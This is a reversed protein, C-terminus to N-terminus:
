EQPNKKFWEVDSRQRETSFLTLTDVWDETPKPAIGKRVLARRMSEVESNTEIWDRYRVAFDKASEEDTGSSLLNTYHQYVWDVDRAVQVDDDSHSHSVRLVTAGLRNPLLTDGRRMMLRGIAACDAAHSRNRGSEEDIRCANVIHQFPPLVTGATVSMAATFAVMDKDPPNGDQAALARYSDPVPNQLYVETLVKLLEVFHTNFRQAASMKALAADIGKADKRKTAVTLDDVWVAANEPELRHLTEVAAAHTEGDSNMAIWQVLVDDPAARRAREPMDEHRKADPNGADFKVRAVLTILAWDRPNPSRTLAEVISDQYSRWAALRAVEEADSAEDTTTTYDPVQVASSPEAEPPKDCAAWAMTCLSTICGALLLSMRIM